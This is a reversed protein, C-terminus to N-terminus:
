DLSARERERVVAASAVAAKEAALAGRDTWIFPATTLVLATESGPLSESSLAEGCSECWTLCSSLRRSAGSVPRKSVAASKGRKLLWLRKKELLVPRSKDPLLTRFIQGVSPLAAFIVRCQWMHLTKRKFVLNKHTKRIFKKGKWYHSSLFSRMAKCDSFRLLLHHSLLLPILTPPCFCNPYKKPDTRDCHKNTGCRTLISKTSQKVCFIVRLTKTLGSM